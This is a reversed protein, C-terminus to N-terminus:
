VETWSVQDVRMAHLAERFAPDLLAAREQDSGYRAYPVGDRTSPHVALETLGGPLAAIDARLSDLTYHGAQRFGLFHDNRRLGQTSGSLQALALSVRLGLAGAFRRRDWSHENPMRIAPIGYERCLWAACAFAPPFAHLHQHSDAHHLQIGADLLREIQARWETEVARTVDRPRRMWRMMQKPLRLFQGAEDTLIQVSSSLPRGEVANLHIGAGLQPRALLYQIAQELCAGTVLVSVGGLMGAHDLAEVADNVERCHGYDDANIILRRENM